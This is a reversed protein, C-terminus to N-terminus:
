GPARVTKMAYVEVDSRHQASVVAALDYSFSVITAEDLVSLPLVRIYMINWLLAGLVTGQPVGMTTINQKFGEDM